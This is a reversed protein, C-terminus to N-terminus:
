PILGMRDQAETRQCRDAGCTVEDAELRTGCWCDHREADLREQRADLVADQVQRMLDIVQEARVMLDEATVTLYRGFFPGIEITETKDGVVANIAELQDVLSVDVAPNLNHAAEIRDALRRFAAAIEAPGTEYTHMSVGNLEIRTEHEGRETLLSSKQVLAGDLSAPVIGLSCSAVPVYPPAETPELDTTTM